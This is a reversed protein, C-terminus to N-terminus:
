PRSSPRRSSLRLFSRALLFGVMFGGTNAAVDILSPYRHQLFLLQGLEVCSSVVAGLAAAQWWACRLAATAAFGIPVFLLVNAGAEVVAYDVWHPMGAAHLRALSSELPGRAAADVPTPWFGVVALVALLAALLWAWLAPRRHTTV